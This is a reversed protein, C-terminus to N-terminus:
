EAFPDNQRDDNWVYELRGCLERAKEAGFLDAVFGLTMDIGASVGSSTYITDNVM